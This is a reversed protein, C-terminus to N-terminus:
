KCFGITSDDSNNRATVQLRLMSFTRDMPKSAYRLKVTKDGLSNLNLVVDVSSNSGHVQNSLSATGGSVEARTALEVFQGKITVTM